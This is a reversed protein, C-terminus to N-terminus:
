PAAEYVSKPTYYEYIARNKRNDAGTKAVSINARLTAERQPSMLKTVNPAIDFFPTEKVLDSPTGKAILEIQGSREVVFSDDDFTVNSRRGNSNSRSLASTINSQNRM